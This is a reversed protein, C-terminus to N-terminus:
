LQIWWSHFFKEILVKWHIEVRIFAVLADVLTSFSIAVGHTYCRSGNTHIALGMGWFDFCHQPPQMYVPSQGGCRCRGSDITKVLQSKDERIGAMVLSISSMVFRLSNRSEHCTVWEGLHLMIGSSAEKDIRWPGAM